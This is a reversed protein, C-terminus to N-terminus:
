GLLKIFNRKRAFRERLAEVHAKHESADRLSAMRALLKVAEAYNDNGGINVLSHVHQSYGHVAERPHTTESAASLRVLIRDSAGLRHVAAWARDHDKDELLFSILLDGPKQWTALPADRANAELYALAADRAAAGGLSQLRQYCRLSPLKEFTSQVLTLAETDRGAQELLDSALLVLHENAGDGEFLWLGEEAYRLADQTRGNSACFSALEAYRHPSSLNKTRLAIRADVDGDQEAFQDLIDYLTYYDANFAPQQGPKALLVPLRSWAQAALRRYEAIGAHGLVDAYVFAARHFCDYGSELEREFLSQAFAVPEPRAIHAAALHLAECRHLLEGCHGNSDDIQEIAEEIREIAYETLELALAPRGAPTLGALADLVDDVERAWSGAGYYDVFGDIHTAEDLLKRLRKALASDDDGVAAEIAALDLKRLLAMDQEALDLIMDVLVDVDQRKLHARIRPITADDAPSALDGMANAALATAVMHKCFDSDEFAPCTCDGGIDRDKGRVRTRYIETGIVQAVIRAPELLLIEVYGKRHYAEGRAFIRDGALARITGIDFRDGSM